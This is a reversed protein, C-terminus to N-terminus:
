EDGKKKGDTSFLVSHLCDYDISASIMGGSILGIRYYEAPIVVRGNRTDIVGAYGSVEYIALYPHRDGNKDELTIIDDIVFEEIVKGQLSVKQKRGGSTLYACDDGQCLTIDQYEPEFLINGDKDILGSLGEDLILRCGNRYARDIFEYEPTLVWEGNRGILGFLDSQPDHVVCCGHEFQYHQYESNGPVSEIVVSHEENIFRVIGDDTMVAALGEHFDWVEAYVAPIEIRGTTIDIFGKRGDPGTFRALSGDTDPYMDVWELKKATIERSETNYVSYTGNDYTRIEVNDSVTETTYPKDQLLRWGWEAINIIINVSLLIGIITLGAKCGLNLVKIIKKKM